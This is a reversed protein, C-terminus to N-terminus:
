CCQQDTRTCVQLNSALSLTSTVTNLGRVEESQKKLQQQLETVRNEARRKEESVNRLNELAKDRERVAGDKEEHLQQM